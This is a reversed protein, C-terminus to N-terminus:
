SGTSKYRHLGFRWFAFCPLIFLTGIPPLFGYLIKDSKGLLYMLPYYQYLALPVVYTLFKLVEKGYVSFPYRGFERGGDTLINMFELGEVTFFTLGAYVLFLGTIIISGCIIMLFLVALKSLSWFVGCAIMAYILMCLSQFFRGLRAFEMKYAMIQFIASRPRVMVRDFEGNSIMSPFRDFGRAFCEAFSFAMQVVAFCLLVQNLTFGKIEPFRSFIFLLSLFTSISALFQGAITLFFSVKYQM